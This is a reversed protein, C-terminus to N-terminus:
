PQHSSDPPPEPSPQHPQTESVVEKGVLGVLESDEPPFSARRLPHIEVRERLVMEGSEGRHTLPLRPPYVVPRSFGSFRKKSGLSQGPSGPRLESWGRHHELHQSGPLSPTLPWLDPVWVAGAKLLAPDLGKEM